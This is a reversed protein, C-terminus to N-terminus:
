VEQTQHGLCVWFCGVYSGKKGAENKLATFDTSTEKFANKGHGPRTELIEVM